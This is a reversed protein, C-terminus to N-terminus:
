PPADLQVGVAAREVCLEGGRDFAGDARRFRPHSTRRGLSLRPEVEAPRVRDTDLPPHQAVLSHRGRAVALANEGREFACDREIGGQVVGVERHPHVLVVRVDSRSGRLEEADEQQQGSPVPFHAEGLHKPHPRPSLEQPPFRVVLEVDNIQPVLLLCRLRQFDELVKATFIRAIRQKGRLDGADLMLIQVIWGRAQLRPPRQEGRRAILPDVLRRQGLHTGPQRDGLQELRQVVGIPGDLMEFRHRREARLSGEPGERERVRAQAFGVVAESIALRRQRSGSRRM